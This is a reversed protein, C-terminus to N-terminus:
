LNEAAQQAAALTPHQGQPQAQGVVFIIYLPGMHLIVKTEDESIWGPWLLYRTQTWIMVMGGM